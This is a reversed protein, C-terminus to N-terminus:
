DKIIKGTATKGQEDTVRVYYFGPSLNSTNLLIETYEPSGDRQERLVQRGLADVLEVRLVGESAGRVGLTLSGFTPVPYATLGLKANSSLVTSGSSQLGSNCHLTFTVRFVNSYTLQGGCNGTGQVMVRYNGTLITRIKLAGATFPLDTWESLFDTLYPSSVQCQWKLVKGM